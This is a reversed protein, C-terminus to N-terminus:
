VVINDDMNDDVNDDELVEERLRQFADMLM